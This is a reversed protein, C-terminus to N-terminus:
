SFLRDDSQQCETGGSQGFCPQLIPGIKPVLRDPMAYIALRSRSPRAELESVPAEFQASRSVRISYEIYGDCTRCQIALRRPRLGRMIKRRPLCLHLLDDALIQSQPMGSTTTYSRLGRLATEDASELSDVLRSDEAIRAKTLEIRDEYLIANLDNPHDGESILRKLWLRDTLLPDNKTGHLSGFYVCAHLRYSLESLDLAIAYLRANAWRNYAALLKFLEQAIMSTCAPVVQGVLFFGLFFTGREPRQVM